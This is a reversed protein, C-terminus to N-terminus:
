EWEKRVWRMEGGLGRQRVQLQMAGAYAGLRHFRSYSKPSTSLRAGPGPYQTELILDYLKTM